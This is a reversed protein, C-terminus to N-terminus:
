EVAVVALAGEGGGSRPELDVELSLQSRETPLSQARSLNIAFKQAPDDATFAKGPFIGFRSVEERTGTKPDVLYVVLDVSGRTPPQFSKVVLTLREEGRALANLDGPEVPVELLAPDAVTATASVDANAESPRTAAMSAVVILGAIAQLAPNLRRNM